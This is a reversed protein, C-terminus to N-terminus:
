ILGNKAALVIAENRTEVNLKTLVNGVHFKVTSTSISLKDAIQGYSMGSAILQLTELERPSLGFDQTQPAPGGSRLINQMLDSSIVTNGEYVTRIISELEDVSTNKLVYGVAGQRLMSQVSDDDQFSSLALIKIQPHAALIRETAEIGDMVPMVVDMLVVHPQQGACLAVAEKGNSCQGVLEFDDVFGIMESLAQHVIRHDDVLLIRISELVPM